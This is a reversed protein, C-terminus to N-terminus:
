KVSKSKCKNPDNRDLPCFYVQAMTGDDQLKSWFRMKGHPCHQAGWPGDTAAAPKGYTRGQSGNQSSNQNSSTNGSPATSESGEQFRQSATKTWDMLKKFNEDQMTNLIDAPADGKLVIWAAEYGKGQKLTVSLRDGGGFEVVTKSEKPKDDTNKVNTENDEVEWPPLDHGQSVASARTGRVKTETQAEDGDPMDDQDPAFPDIEEEVIKKARPPM